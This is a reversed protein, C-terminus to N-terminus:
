RMTTLENAQNINNTLPWESYVHKENIISEKIIEYHLPAKVSVVVLDIEKNQILEDYNDYGYEINLTRKANMASAQNSTSVAILEYGDHNILAPIHSKIAWSEPNVSGGVIGVKIKNHKAVM